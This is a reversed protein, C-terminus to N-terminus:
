FVGKPGVILPLCSIVFTRSQMPLEFAGHTSSLVAASVVHVALANYDYLASYKLVDLAALLILPWKSM